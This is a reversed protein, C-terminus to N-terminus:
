FSTGFGATVMPGVAVPGGNRLRLASVGANGLLVIGNWTYSGVLGSRWQWDTEGTPEDDDRELDVQFRSDIGVHVNRTIPHLAALRLEGSREGEQLGHEYVLNALLYSAGLSRGVALKVAAAPVTNFGAQIYGVAVAMDLGLTAQSAAHFRLDVHPSAITGPGDYTAGASLFVPAILQAEATTDYVGGGRAQDWGGMVSVFGRGGDLRASLATSLFAGAAVTASVSSAPSASSAAADDAPTPPVTALTDDARAVRWPGVLAGTVIVTAICVTSRRRSRTGAIV